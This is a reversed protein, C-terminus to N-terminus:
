AAVSDYGAYVDGDDYYVEVPASDYVPEEEYVVATDNDSNSEPYMDVYEYEGDNLGSKNGGASLMFYSVAGAIALVAAVALAIWLAKRKKGSGVQQSGNIRRTPNSDGGSVPPPPAPMSPDNDNLAEVFAEASPLRESRKMQMAGIIANRVAASTQKPLSAAINASTQESAVVPDKGTLMYLLTAGLAYVDAQPAFNNLGAYQEIPAYGDSCGQVRITSTPRGKMDFHKSLGFDILVPKVVSVALHQLMINDPKIDLHNILNSHLFKVAKAIGKITEVAEREGMPGQAKVKDRLSGESLYEMVYYATNNAEFVESVPVIYPSKGSLERLRLAESLFDKRSDDVRAKAPKSCTVDGNIRECSDKLFHEKMAFSLLMPVNDIVIATSVKYTIGFGGVGLVADIRYERSPSKVTTGIPLAYKFDENEKM